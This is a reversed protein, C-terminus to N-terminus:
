VLSYTSWRREGEKRVIGAAILDGLERQITKESITRLHASIDKISAQPKARIVSIITERRGDLNDKISIDKVAGQRLRPLPQRASAPRVTAVNQADYKPATKAIDALSPTDGLAVRPDEYEAVEQLLLHAEHAILEANMASLVGKTRAIALVSSLMLLGRSLATRAEKSPLIAADVLDVSLADVRKRLADSEQFAPAIVHLAKALREAKKYIYIRKIDKEFVNSFISKELVFDDDQTQKQKQSKNRVDHTQGIYKQGQGM